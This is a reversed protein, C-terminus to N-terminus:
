FFYLSFRGATIAIRVCTEEYDGLVVYIITKKKHHIVNTDLRITYCAFFVYFNICM